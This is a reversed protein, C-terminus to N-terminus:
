KLKTYIIFIVFKGNKNKLIFLNYFIIIIYYYM